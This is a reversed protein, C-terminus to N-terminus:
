LKREPKTPRTSDALGSPAADDPVRSVLQFKVGADRLARAAEVRIIHLGGPLVVGPSHRYLIPIAKLEEQDALRIVVNM